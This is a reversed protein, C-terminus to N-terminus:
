RVLAITISNPATQKCVTFRDFIRDKRDIWDLLHCWIGLRVTGFEFMFFGDM